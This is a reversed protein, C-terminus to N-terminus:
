RQISCTLDHRANHDHVIPTAKVLRCFCLGSKCSVFKQGGTGATCHSFNLIKSHLASNLNIKNTHLGQDSCWYWVASITLGFTM